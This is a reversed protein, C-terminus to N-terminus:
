AARRKKRSGASKAKPKDSCVKSARAVADLSAALIERQAELWHREAHGHEAGGNMWLQYARERIAQELDSM